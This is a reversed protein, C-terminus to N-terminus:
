CKVLHQKPVECSWTGQTTRITTSAAPAPVPSPDATLVWDLCFMPLMFYIVHFACHIRPFVHHIRLIRSGHKHTPISLPQSLRTIKCLVDYPARAFGGASLKSLRPVWFAFLTHFRETGSSVHSPFQKLSMQPATGRRLDRSRFVGRGSGVELSKTHCAESCCGLVLLMIFLWDCREKTAPAQM